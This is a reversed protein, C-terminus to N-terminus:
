PRIGADRIAKGWKAIEAKHFARFAESTSGVGEIGLGAFAEVIEPSKVAKVIAGNLTQLVTRPLAAPGCMGQWSGGEFGPVGAEAIAPLAPMLPSRNRKSIGLARVRGAKVHQLSASISDFMMHLNGALLDNTAPATGKYPVHTAKIGTMSVFIESILHSASGIGASGFSIWGPKARALAVLEQVSTAPFNHPVLLVFPASSVLSIPALDRVPDYSTKSLLPNFVAVSSTCLLMTYGDPRASVTLEAAISGGAGARNDVVVTQGLDTGMKQAVIRAVIDAVGGPAFPVIMRLPREPFAPAQSHAPLPVALAAVGCAAAGRATARWAASLAIRSRRTAARHPFTIPPIRSPM